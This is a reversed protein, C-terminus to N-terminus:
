QPLLLRDIIHVVGNVGNKDFNPPASVAAVGGNGVGTVRLSSVTLGNANFIVQVNVGPHTPVGNNILTTYFSSTGSFNVSFARHPSYSNPASLRALFHYVVIGQASAAPLSNAIFGLFVADPAAM